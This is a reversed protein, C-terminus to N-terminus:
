SLYQTLFEEWDALFIGAKKTKTLDLASYAPRPAIKRDKKDSLYDETTIPIVKTGKNAIEFIKTAFDAWSIIPGDGTVHYIGAEPQKKIVDYIAQALDSAATPRGVQDKVVKIETMTESLTLMTRVFNKGEGYVWSTRLIWYDSLTKTAEEGRLKTDGYVSKPSPKDEPLYPKSAQGDFVYDTSVYIMKVDYKRCAEVLNGTGEANIKKALEPNEECGDVNTLAAGHVIFDPGFKGFTKELLVENTIDMDDSDTLLVEESKLVEALATGLQGHGGTVLIKTM